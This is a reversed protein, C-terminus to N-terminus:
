TSSDQARISQIRAATEDWARSALNCYFVIEDLKEMTAQRVARSEAKIKEMERRHYESRRDLYDSFDEGLRIEFDDAIEVSPPNSDL